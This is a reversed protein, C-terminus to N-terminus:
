CELLSNVVTAFMLDFSIRNRGAETGRGIKDMKMRHSELMRARRSLWGLSVNGCFTLGLGLGVLSPQSSKMIFRAISSIRRIEYMGPFHEPWETRTRSTDYANRGAGPTSYLQLLGWTVSKVAHLYHQKM